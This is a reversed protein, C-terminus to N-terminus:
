ATVSSLIAFNFIPAENTTGTTSAFSVKFSGSAVNSIIINYILAGTQQVINITDTAVVRANTVTFSTYTTSAAAGFLTISGCMNNITVGTTRSTLQTVAGGVGTGYGLSIQGANVKLNQGILNNFTCTSLSKAQLNQVNTLTCVTDNTAPFTFATNDTGSFSLTNISTLSKGTAVNAALYDKEWTGTSTGIGICTLLIDCGAAVIWFTAGGNTNVTLTGTSNNDLKYRTGLLLTVASPLVVTQALTGTFQTLFPSAATLTTTGGATPITQSGLAESNAYLTTFAGTAPTTGGIAGPAPFSTVDASGNFSSGGINRATALTTAAGATFGTATGTINTGVFSAPTGLGIANSSADLWVGRGSPYCCFVDKTGASFSVAAGGNSSSLVLDRSLLSGSATYTGIGVEWETTTQGVIAFYTTNLNGISSFGQFGAVAGGLTLTGVGATTTTEKVRDKLILAM